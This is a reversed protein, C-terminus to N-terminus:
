AKLKSWSHSSDQENKSSTLLPFSSFMSGYVAVRLIGYIAVGHTGLFLSVYSMISSNNFSFHLRTSTKPNGPIPFLERM